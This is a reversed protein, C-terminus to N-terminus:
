GPTGSGLLEFISKDNGNISVPSSLSKSCSNNYLLSPIGILLYEVVNVKTSLSMAAIESETDLNILENELTKQDDKIHINKVYKFYKIENNFDYGLGASNGTDYNIGVKLLILSPSIIMM